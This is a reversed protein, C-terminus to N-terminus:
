FILVRFSVKKLFVFRTNVEENICNNAVDAYQLKKLNSLKGIISIPCESIDLKSISKESSFQVRTDQAPTAM